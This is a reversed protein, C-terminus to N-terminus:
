AHSRLVVSAGAGSRPATTRPETPVSLVFHAGGQSSALRLDGCHREAVRRAIALGLGSGSGRTRTGDATWFRDFVRDELEPPIGPGDDVVELRVLDGDVRTSVRVSSVAHRSANELLNRVLRRLEGADGLLPAASVGVTDVTIGRSSSLRSAEELVLDDLDLLEPRPATHGDDLRAMFLLDRVLQEMEDTDALLRRATAPWDSGDHALAVELEARLATIPSQLEHSADAVFYRQRRQAEELRGLMRTMVWWTGAAVLLVLLPVAVLLDSRLTRSAESVSEVSSGAVVTVPGTPTSASATWVRYEETENDDPANRLLRRAPATSTASPTLPGSGVVNPSAALVRGDATFVQAVGEGDISTLVRPLAGRAALGALDAVRGRALDDGSRHLSRDLTVVLLVAGVLLAAGSVATALATTRLRVSALGTLPGSM